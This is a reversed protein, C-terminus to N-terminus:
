KANRLYNMVGDLWQQDFHEYDQQNLFMSRATENKDRGLAAHKKYTKPFMIEGPIPREFGGLYEGPIMTDYSLHSGNGGVNQLLEKDPRSRFITHGSAANEVGYLAPDTVARIVDDFHPVGRDQFGPMRLAAVLAKRMEGAGSMPYGDTGLLQPILEDSDLGVFNPRGVAKAGTGGTRVQTNVDRIVDKPLDLARLQRVMAEAVHHSFNAGDNLSMASYIGFPAEGTKDAVMQFQKQKNAAAGKMSAWAAGTGHADHVRAYDAGGQLQVPADLPVGNVQHLTKGAATRDGQVQVGYKGYLEEPSIIPREDLVHADEIIDGGGRLAERQSLGPNNSYADNLKKLASKNAPTMQSPDAPIGKEGMMRDFGPLPPAEKAALDKMAKTGAKKTALAGLAAMGGIAGKTAGAPSFLSSVLETTENDLGEQKPPLLGKKTLYDTSGFVDEPKVLGSMTLPLGALDVFGTAMQPVGRAVSNGWEKGKRLATSLFNESM